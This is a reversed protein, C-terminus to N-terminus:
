NTARLYYIVERGQDVYVWETVGKTRASFHRAMSASGPDFWWTPSYPFDADAVVPSGEEFEMQGILDSAFEASEHPTLRFRVYEFLDRAIVSRVQIDTAGEPIVLRPGGLGAAEVGSELRRDHIGPPLSWSILIWTFCGIPLLLLVLASVSLWLLFRRM